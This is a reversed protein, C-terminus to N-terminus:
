ETLMQNILRLRTAGLASRVAIEKQRTAARSLLLTAVNACAILLVFAVAAMLVLLLPRISGVVEEQFPETLITLQGRRVFDAIAGPYAAVIVRSLSQAESRAQDLTVGPRLRGVVSNFYSGGWGQLEASTFGMPVWLAAPSGNETPGVLPFQFDRPMVGIVAYPQRELEITKGIVNAEGGYRGQWLEYGLF